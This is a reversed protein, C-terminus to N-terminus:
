QMIFVVFPTSLNVTITLISPSKLDKISLLELEICYNQEKKEWLSIELFMAMTIFM